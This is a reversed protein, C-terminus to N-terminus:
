QQITRATEVYNTGDYVFTVTGQKSAILTLTGYVVFNGDFTVVRGTGDSTFIFTLEDCVQSYTDAIDIECAGTLTAPKIYTKSKGPLAPTITITASYAPTLYDLTLKRGTNDKQPQASTGFRQANAGLSLTVACIALLIFKKM